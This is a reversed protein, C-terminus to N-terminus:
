MCVTCVKYKKISEGFQWVDLKCPDYPGNSSVEKPRSRFNRRVSGGTPVGVCVREHVPCDDPFMIALEFDILYVRPISPTLNNLLSEPHWQIVFNDAFADQCPFSKLCGLSYTLM